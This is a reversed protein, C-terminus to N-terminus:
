MIRIVRQFSKGAIIIDCIKDYEKTINLKKKKKKKKVEVDRKLEM